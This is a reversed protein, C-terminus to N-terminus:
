ENYRLDFLLYVAGSLLMIEFNLHLYKSFLGSIIMYLISSVFAKM